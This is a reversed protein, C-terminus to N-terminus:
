EFGKLAIKCAEVATEQTEAGLLYGHLHCFNIGKLGTIGDLESKKGRWEEPFPVKCQQSDVAVPVAQANYLGRESPYVVYYAKEPALVGKWPMGKPLIVIGDNSEALCARVIKEAHETSHMSQIENELIYKAVEVAKFFKKDAEASEDWKPNMQTIVRCLQNNGGNNDQYDLPQIFSEDFKMAEKSSVLINGYAKWLLGFAAYEVGNERLELESGHHGFPGDGLDFVLGEYNEPIFNSRVIQIQPNLIKLLAASFVDDTHFRGSHTMAINPISKIKNM